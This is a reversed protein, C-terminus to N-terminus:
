KEIKLKEKYWKWEELRFILIKDNIV